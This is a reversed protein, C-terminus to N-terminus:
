ILRSLTYTAAVVISAGAAAALLTWVWFPIKPATPHASSGSIFVPKRQRARYHTLLNSDM